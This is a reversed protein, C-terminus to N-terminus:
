LLDREALARLRTAAERLSDGASMMRDAAYALRGPPVKLSGQLLQSLPDVIDALGRAAQNVVHAVNDLALRGTWLPGQEDESGFFGCEVLPLLVAVGDETMAVGAALSLETWGVPTLSNGFAASVRITPRGNTDTPEDTGPGANATPPESNM